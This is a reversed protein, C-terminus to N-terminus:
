GRDAERRRRLHVHAKAAGWEIGPLQLAPDVDAFSAPSLDYIDDPFARTAIADRDVPPVGIEVLVSTPYRVASRLLALPGTRQEDIDLALLTAVAGGVETEARRAAAGIRDLTWAPAPGGWEAVTVTVCRNVWGPLAAVLGATLATAFGALRAEDDALSPVSIPTSSRQDHPQDRDTVLAVYRTSGQVARGGGLHDM